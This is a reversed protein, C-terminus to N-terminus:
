AGAASSRSANIREMLDIPMGRVNGDYIWDVTCGTARCVRYAMDISPRWMGKEWQSLSQPSVGCYRAMKAQTMGLAIRLEILRAGIAKL